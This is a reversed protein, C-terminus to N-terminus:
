LHTGCMCTLIEPDDPYIQLLTLSQRLCWAAVDFVAGNDADAYAVRQFVSIVPLQWQKRVEDTTTGCFDLSGTTDRVAQLHERWSEPRMDLDNSIMEVTCMLSHAVSEAM